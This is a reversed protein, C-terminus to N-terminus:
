EPIYSDVAEATPGNAENVRDADQYLQEAQEFLQDFRKQQEDSMNRKMELLEEQLELVENCVRNGMWKGEAACQDVYERVQEITKEYDDIKATIIPDEPEDTAESIINTASDGLYETFVFLKDRSVEPFYYAVSQRNSIEDELLNFFTEAQVERADVDVTGDAIIHKCKTMPDILLGKVLVSAAWYYNNMNCDVVIFCINKYQGETQLGFTADYNNWRTINALLEATIPEPSVEHCHSKHVYCEVPGLDEDQYSVFFWDGEEKVVPLIVDKSATVDYSTYGRRNPVDSWKYSSEIADSEIDEQTVALKPSSFSAEKYFPTDNETIVVFREWAPQAVSLLPNGGEDKSGSCTFFGVLVVILAAVIGGGVMYLKQKDQPIENFASSLNSMQLPSSDEESEEASAVEESAVVEDAANTAMPSDRIVASMEKGEERRRLKKESIIEHGFPTVAISALKFHQKGFPIGIITICFLLGLIAHELAVLLGGLILWVLNM